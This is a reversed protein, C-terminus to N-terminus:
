SGGLFRLLLSKNARSRSAICCALDFAGDVDYGTVSHNDRSIYFPAASVASFLSTTYNSAYFLDIVLTEFNIELGIVRMGSVMRENSEMRVNLVLLREREQEEGGDIGSEGTEETEKVRGEGKKDVTVKGKEKKAKGGCTGASILFYGV